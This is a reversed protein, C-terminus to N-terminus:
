RYAELELVSARYFAGRADSREDLIRLRIRRTTIPSFSLEVKTEDNGSRSTGRVERWRGAIEYELVFSRALYTADTRSFGPYATVRSIRTAQDWELGFWAEVPRRSPPDSTAAARLNDNGLSGDNLKDLDRVAGTATGGIPRARYALNADNWISAGRQWELMADWMEDTLVHSLVHTYWRRRTEGAPFLQVGGVTITNPPHNSPFITPDYDLERTLWFEIQHYFEHSILTFMQDRTYVRGPLWFHSSFPSGQLMTSSTLAGGGPRVGEPLKVWALIMQYRGRPLRSQFLSEVDRPGAWYALNGETGSARSLSTIPGPVELVDTEALLRGGTTEALWYEFEAHKERILAKEDPTFRVTELPRAHRGALTEIDTADVILALIRWEHADPDTQPGSAFRSDGREPQTSVRPAQPESQLTGSSVGVVGSRDDSRFQTWSYFLSAVFVVLVPLLRRVM